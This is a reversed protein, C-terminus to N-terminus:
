SGEEQSEQDIVTFTDTGSKTLGALVATKTAKGPVTFLTAYCYQRGSNSMRGDEMVRVILEVCEKDLHFKSKNNIIIRGM